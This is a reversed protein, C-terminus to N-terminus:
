AGGGCADGFVATTLSAIETQIDQAEASLPKPQVVGGPGLEDPNPTSMPHDPREVYTGATTSFISFGLPQVDGELGVLAWGQGKTNGGYEPVSFCGELTHRILVDMFTDGGRRPDPKFGGHDLMAVVADQDTTSLTAFAGGKTAQAVQDVKALSARYLDRLGQKPGGLQADIAALEPVGATGFIDGRHYVEQLRTPPIFKKFSNRPRRRSATGTKPDPYPNRGSFPGGAFLMAKKRDLSTLLTEVYRAAGLAKGGPTGDDPPIIRDVLAELTARESKTFFGGRARAVAREVRLIPAALAALVVGLAKLFERRGLLLAASTPPADWRLAAPLGDDPARRAMRPLRLRIM